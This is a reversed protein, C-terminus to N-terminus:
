PFFDNIKKNREVSFADGKRESIKVFKASFDCPVFFSIRRMENANCNCLLTSTCYTMNSVFWIVSHKYIGVFFPNEIVEPLKNELPNCNELQKCNKFKVNTAPFNESLVILLSSSVTCLSVTQYCVAGAFHRILFGEDDRMKKHYILHSKRPLQFSLCSFSFTTM